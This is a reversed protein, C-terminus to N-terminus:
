ADETLSTVGWGAQLSSKTEFGIAAGLTHFSFASNERSLRQQYTGYPGLPGRRQSHALGYAPVIRPHRVLSPMYRYRPTDQARCLYRSMDLALSPIPYQM